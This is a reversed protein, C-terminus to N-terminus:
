SNSRSNHNHDKKCSTSSRSSRTLLYMVLLKSVMFDAQIDASLEPYSVRRKYTNMVPQPESV